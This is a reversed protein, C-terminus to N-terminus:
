KYSVVGRGDVGEGNFSSFEAKGFLDTLFKSEKKLKARWNSETM